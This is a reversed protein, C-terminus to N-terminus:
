SWINSNGVNEADRTALEIKVFDKETAYLLTSFRPVTVRTLNM